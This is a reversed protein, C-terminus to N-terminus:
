RRAVFDMLESACRDPTQTGDIILDALGRTPAVFQEHMPRVTALYQAIIDEESRGRERTDRRIRRILRLDSPVDVFVKADFCARLSPEALVVIGEVIVVPRPQLEEDNKLRQHTAFDYQPVRVPRGARLAQLDAVLRATDLSNPHDFNYAGPRARYEEPLSFYYRDHTIHVCADGLRRVVESTITSKGSATGGAIGVVWPVM